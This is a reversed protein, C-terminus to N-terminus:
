GATDARKRASVILSYGQFPLALVDLWAFARMLPYALAYMRFAKEQRRIDGETVVTGKSDAGSTNRNKRLYVANLAIDLVESFFRNYTRHTMAEFSTSLLARLGGVTYGPRVHGHWEDTLGVADRVPRLLAGRKAHPVNVILQGGPAIIRALEAVLAADDEVHELMDIVVVVDFQADEFPLSTGNVQHVDTGVIGRISEVAHDTLDASCWRGGRRRLLYSILGNDAGLDLGCHDSTDGLLHSIARWKAQKAVSTRFLRMHWDVTAESMAVFSVGWVADTFPAAPIRNLM